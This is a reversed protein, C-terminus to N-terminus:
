WDDADRKAGCKACVSTGTNFHGCRKCGWGTDSPASNSKTKQSVGQVQPSNFRITQHIKSIEQFVQDLVSIGDRTNAEIDLLVSISEAIVRLIIFSFTGFIFSSVSGAIGPILNHNFNAFIGILIGIGALGVIFWGLGTCFLAISRLAAYKNYSSDIHKAM